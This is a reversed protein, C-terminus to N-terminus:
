SSKKQFQEYVLEIFEKPTKTALRVSVRIIGELLDEGTMTIGLGISVSFAEEPSSGVLMGEKWFKVLSNSIAESIGEWTSSDNPATIFKTADSKVAKEILKLTAKDITKTEDNM